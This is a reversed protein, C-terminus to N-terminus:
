TWQRGADVQKRGNLKNESYLWKFQRRLGTLPLSVEEVMSIDPGFVSVVPRDVRDFPGSLAVPSM